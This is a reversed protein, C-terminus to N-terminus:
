ADSKKDIDDPQDFAAEAMESQCCPCWERYQENEDTSMLFINCCEPNMCRSIRGVAMGMIRDIM